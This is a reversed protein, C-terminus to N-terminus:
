EEEEDFEVGESTNTPNPEEADLDLANNPTDVVTPEDDDSIEEPELDSFKGSAAEDQHNEQNPLEFEESTESGVSEEEDSITEPPIEEADSMVVFQQDEETPEEDEEEDSDSGLMFVDEGVASHGAKSNSTGYRSSINFLLKMYFIPDLEYSILKTLFYLLVKPAVKQLGLQEACQAIFEHNFYCKSKDSEGDYIIDMVFEKHGGLFSADVRVRGKDLYNEDIIEVSIDFDFTAYHGITSFVVITMKTTPQHQYFRTLIISNRSSTFRSFQTVVNDLVNRDYSNFNPGEADDEDSDGTLDIDSPRELLLNILVKATNQESRVDKVETVFEFAGKTVDVQKMQLNFQKLLIAQSKTCQELYKKSQELDSSGFAKDVLADQTVLHKKLSKGVSYLLVFQYRTKFAEMFDYADVEEKKVNLNENFMRQYLLYWFYNNDIMHRRWDKCVTMITYFVVKPPLYNCIVQVCDLIFGDERKQKKFQVVQADDETDLKRKSLVSEVSMEDQNLDLEFREQNSNESSTQQAKKIKRM